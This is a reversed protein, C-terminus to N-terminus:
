RKATIKQNKSFTIAIMRYESIPYIIM